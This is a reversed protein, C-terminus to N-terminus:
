LLCLKLKLQVFSLLDFWCASGAATLVLYVVMWRVGKCNKIKSLCVLSFIVITLFCCHLTDSSSSFSVYITVNFILIFMSQGKRKAESTMEMLLTSDKSSRVVSLLVSTTIIQLLFHKVTSARITIEKPCLSVSELLQSIFIVM